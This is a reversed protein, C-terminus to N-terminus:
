DILKHVASGVENVFDQLAMPFLTAIQLSNLLHETLSLRNLVLLKSTITDLM